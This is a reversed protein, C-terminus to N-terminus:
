HLDGPQSIFFTRKHQFNIIKINGSHGLSVYLSTMILNLKGNTVGFIISLFISLSCIWLCVNLSCPVKPPVKVRYLIYGTIM